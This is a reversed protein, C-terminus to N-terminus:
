KVIMYYTSLANDMVVTVGKGTLKSRVLLKKLLVYEKEFKIPLGGQQYNGCKQESDIVLYGRYKGRGVLKM